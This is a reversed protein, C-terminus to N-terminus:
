RPAAEARAQQIAAALREPQRSGLLINRGEKMKLQVGRNGSMNYAIGKASRRLGWGGYELIPRYTVPEASEITGVPIAKRYLPFLPTVFGVFLRDRHVEFRLRVASLIYPLAIGIAPL